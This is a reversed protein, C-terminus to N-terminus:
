EGWRRYRGTDIHVGWSYTGLGGDLIEKKNWLKKVIKHLKKVKIGKCHFDMAHGGIHLSNSVGGVNRNHKTCRNTCHTIMPHGIYERLKDAMDLLEQDIYAQGCGCHCEIESKTFYKAIM